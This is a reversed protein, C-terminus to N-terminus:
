MIIIRGHICFFDIARFVALGVLRETRGFVMMYLLLEWNNLLHVQAKKFPGAV